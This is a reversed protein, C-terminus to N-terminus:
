TLLCTYVKTRSDDSIYNMRDLWWWIPTEIVMSSSDWTSYSLSIKGKDVTMGLNYEIKEGDFSFPLSYALPKWNVNDFCDELASMTDDTNDRGFVVLYHHYTRPTEYHVTHASLFLLNKYAVPCASGRFRSFCPPINLETRGWTRLRHFSVGSTKMLQTIGDSKRIDIEGWTLPSFTYLFKKSPFALWNKECEAAPMPSEIYKEIILQGNIFDYTGIVIGVKTNMSYQKSCGIFKPLIFVDDNNEDVNEFYIRVDEVGMVNCQNNYITKNVNEMVKESIINYDEDCVLCVNETQIVSSFEGDKDRITYSGSNRNISYNVKRINILVRHSNKDQLICPSSDVFQKMEISTSIRKRKFESPLPTVYFKMNSFTNNEFMKNKIFEKNNLLSISTKLGDLKKHPFLYYQIISFEYEFEYDYVNKEVFLIDPPMPIDKGMLYYRYALAHNGKERYFKCMRFIAEARKPNIGFGLFTYKEAEDINGLELALGVIKYHAYWTEEVWGGLSIRKKYLDIAKQKYDPINPSSTYSQALYFYYRGNEPEKKIGETLLLIDRSYKNDKCGGDGIDNIFISKMNYVPFPDNQTDYYEHTVGVCKIKHKTRSLRTNWWELSGSKQKLAIINNHIGELEKKIREVKSIPNETLPHKEGTESLCMDADLFLLWKCKTTSYAHNLAETRNEGFNTFVSFFVKGKVKYKEPLTENKKDWYTKIVSPTTDNSGTDIIVYESILPFGQGDPLGTNDLFLSDFLRPLNKAENKVIMNLCITEDM